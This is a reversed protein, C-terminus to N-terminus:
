LMGGTFLMELIDLQKPTKAQRNLNNYSIEDATHRVTEDEEHPEAGLDEMEEDGAEEDGGAEEEREIMGESWMDDGVEEDQEPTGDGVLEM